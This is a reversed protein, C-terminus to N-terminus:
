ELLPADSNFKQAVVFTEERKGAQERGLTSTINQVEVPWLCEIGAFAIGEIKEAGSAEPHIQVEGGAMAGESCSRVIEMRVIPGLFWKGGLVCGCNMVTRIDSEDV